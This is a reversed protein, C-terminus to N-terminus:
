THGCDLHKLGINQAGLRLKQGHVDARIVGPGFFMQGSFERKPSLKHEQILNWTTRNYQVHTKASAGALEDRKPHACRLSPTERPAHRVGRPGLGAASWRASPKFPMGLLGSPPCLRFCSSSCLNTDNTKINLRNAPRPNPRYHTCWCRMTIRQRPKVASSTDCPIEVAAASRRTPIGM